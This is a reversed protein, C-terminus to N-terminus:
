RRGAEEVIKEFSALDQRAKFGRAGSRLNADKQMRELNGRLRSYQIQRFVKVQAAAGEETASSLELSPFHNADLARKLYYTQRAYRVRSNM